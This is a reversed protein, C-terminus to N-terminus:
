NLNWRRPDIAEWHPLPIEELLACASPILEDSFIKVSDEWEAASTAGIVLGDLLTHQRVWAMAAQAPSLGCNRAVNRFQGVASIVSDDLFSIDASERSLLGQHFISRAYLKKGRGIAEEQMVWGFRQDLFSLPIQIVTIEPRELARWFEDEAYISVGVDVSEFSSQTVWRLFDLQGDTGLFEEHFYVVEISLGQLARSSRELSERPAVSPDLKTHVKFDFGSRGLIEEALGYTPATDVARTGCDRAKELISRAGTMADVESRLEFIGYPRVLQATGLILEM